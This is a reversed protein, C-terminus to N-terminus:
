KESNADLSGVLVRRVLDGVVILNNGTAFIVARNEVRVQESRGLIRIDVLPREILQCLADGELQGNLNDISVLPQGTIVAAGLRKELEEVSSGASIVP